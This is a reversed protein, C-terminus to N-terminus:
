LRSQFRRHATAKASETVSPREATVHEHRRSTVLATTYELGDQFCIGIWRSRPNRRDHISAPLNFHPVM